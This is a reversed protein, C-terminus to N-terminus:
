KIARIFVSYKLDNEFFYEEVKNNIEENTGKNIEKVDFPFATLNLIMGNSVKHSSGLKLLDANFKEDEKGPFTMDGRTLQWSGETREWIDFYYEKGYEGPIEWCILLQDNNIFNVSNILSMEYYDGMKDMLQGKIPEKDDIKPVEKSNSKWKPPQRKISILFEANHTKIM